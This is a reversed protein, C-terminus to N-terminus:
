RSFSKPHFQGVFPYEMSLITVKELWFPQGAASFEQSFSRVVLRSVQNEEIAWTSGRNSEGLPDITTM